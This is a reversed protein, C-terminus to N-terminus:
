RRVTPFATEGSADDDPAQPPQADAFADLWPPVLNRLDPAGEVIESLGPLAKRRESIPAMMAAGRRAADRAAAQAAETIHDALAEFEHDELYSEDIVTKTLRGQVDVTVEVMGNAAASTATLKAQKDRVATIDALQAEVLAMVEAVQHRLADNTM